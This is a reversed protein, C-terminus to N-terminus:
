IITNYRHTNMWSLISNHSAFMWSSWPKVMQGLWQQPRQQFIQQFRFWLLVTPLSIIQPNSVIKYSGRISSVRPLVCAFGQALTLALMVPLHNAVIEALPNQWAILGAHKDFMKTGHKAESGVLSAWLILTIGSDVDIMDTTQIIQIHNIIIFKISSSKLIWFILKNDLGFQPCCRPELFLMDIVTSNRTPTSWFLTTGGVGGSGWTTHKELLCLPAIHATTWSDHM